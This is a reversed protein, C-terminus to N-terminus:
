EEPLRGPQDDSLLGNNQPTGLTDVERLRRNIARTRAAAKEITEGAQRLRQQTQELLDAFRGFEAKVSGLLLWVDASRQEIALTRFGVQLSNLLASLTSPGAILVRQERQVEEMLGRSRLAEAYLGETALFMVAFDTSYPPAIYKKSIRKAENRIATQLQQTAAALAEADGAESATQLREYAEMPFKSDIPLYVPQNTDTGPLRIAFEVREQSGPVIQVNEEYQEPTMIQSILNGLQIEGWIGRTKVNTLVRKLDGVGNALTQMEGLGKYVQELRENVVSFSEGLRKNLTEHLKEDVTVRMQELKESNEKQLKEIGSALTTRLQETKEDNSTLKNDLTSVIRHIRIDQSQDFIDLRASLMDMRQDSTRSNEAVTSIFAQQQRSLESRLKEELEAGQKNAETLSDSLEKYSHHQKVLLVILLVISVASLICAAIVLIDKYESILEPM